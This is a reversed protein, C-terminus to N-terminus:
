DLCFVCRFGSYSARDTAAFGRRYASRCSMTHNFWSGGRMVRINDIVEIQPDVEDHETYAGFGDLCWEWINGHMDYLGWPNAVLEGVAHTERGSNSQYWAAKKLGAVPSGVYYETTTGARCAYEWEAETPLRLVGRGQLHGTVKECFRECDSGRVREVPRSAGLMRSPNSGMVVVWQAQTVPYIGLFFRKSLTVRHVPQEISRARKENSGMLFTGPPIFSFTMEVGGSLNITEQSVCPRVGEAILKMITTQWKKREPHQEPECSSALM